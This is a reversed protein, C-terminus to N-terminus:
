ATPIFGSRGVATGTFMIINATSALGPPPEDNELVVVQADRFDAAVSSYFADKVARPFAEEGAEPERYVVLPSDILVLGSCPRDEDACLRLLALNFAARTIARVGKGRSGRPRGSIVVDQNAESWTVRDVGPFHWKRLLREVEKVFSEAEGASAGMLGGDARPRTRQARAVKLLEQLQQQRALLDVVRAAAQRRTETERFVRVAQELRPQLSTRLEREVRDLELGRADRETAAQEIVTANADLTVELDRLLATTKVAEAECARTVDAPPPQELAHERQHHEAASGCVPCREETLQGLRVGAEAIAALRELDSRYQQRLLEFRTQLERRVNLRSEVKRLARWADRRQGEIPAAATQASALASSAAENEATQGALRREAASLDDDVDLERLEGLTHDVLESLVEARGNYRSRAIEPKEQAIVSADDAGTLLLRFVRSEPTRSMNQGSFIPSRARIVSEEDVLTLLALDRFSLDRTAGHAAMRIKRGALGCQSLLFYSVTDRRKPDHKARLRESEADPATLQVTDDTLGRALVYERGEGRAWLRVSATAYHEAEPIAKPPTGAGLVFDICQAVYTKGTDSPGAIVNLGDAFGVVADPVGPGTLRLERLAFGVNV